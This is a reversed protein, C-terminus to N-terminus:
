IFSRRGYISGPRRKWRVCGVNVCGDLAHEIVNPSPFAEAEGTLASIAAAIAYAGWNSIAATIALDVKTAAAVGAGCPCLCKSGLPLLKKVTDNINGMGIENGVDGIGM